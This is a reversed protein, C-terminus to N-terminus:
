RTSSSSSRTPTRGRRPHGRGAADDRRRRRPPRRHRRHRRRAPHAQGGRDLRPGRRGPRRRRQRARPRLRTRRGARRQGPAPQGRQPAAPRRRRADPDQGAGQALARAQRRAHDQRRGPPRGAHDRDPRDQRLAAPPDRRRPDHRAGRQRDQRGAPRPEAGRQGGRRPRAGQGRRRVGQGRAPRRRGRAARDPDRARDRRHRGRLAPGQRPPEQLHRRPPRLTHRVLRTRTLRADPDFGLGLRPRLGLARLAGRARGRRGATASRVPRAAGAPLVRRGGAARAHRRPRLPGRPRPAALAACVLYVVGPRDAARVELVTAQDSAEPRVVVTPRSSAPTRRACGPPRTSGATSSRTTGSGSCPRTSTRRPSRGCALRRVADQAWARAARVPIRQLALVAACDALLGVRDPAVVTVRSGDGVAEVAVAAAGGAPRGRPIPSRTPSPGARPSRGADLSAHRGAPGPRAGARGALRVLGEGLHGPRRGRHAGHAAGAGRRLRGPLGGARRDGPRRPGPHHGDRRAAPALAGADRGPRGRGADFGM